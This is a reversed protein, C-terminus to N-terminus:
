NAQLKKLQDTVVAGNEQFLKIVEELKKVSALILEVNNLM